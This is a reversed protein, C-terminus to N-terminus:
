PTRRPLFAPDHDFDTAGSALRTADTLLFDLPLTPVDLRFPPTSVAEGASAQRAAQTAGAPAAAQHRSAVVFLAFAAAAAVPTAVVLVRGLVRPRPTARTAVAGFPPVREADARRLTIMARRLADDDNPPGSGPPAKPNM